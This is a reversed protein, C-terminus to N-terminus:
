SDKETKDRLNRRFKGLGISLMTMRKVLLTSQAAKNAAAESIARCAKAASAV